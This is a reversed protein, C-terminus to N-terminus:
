ANNNVPTHSDYKNKFNTQDQQQAAKLKDPNFIESKKYTIEHTHDDQLWKQARADFFKIPENDFTIAQAAIIKVDVKVPPGCKAKMNGEADVYTEVEHYHGMTMECRTHPEGEMSHSHFFHVHEMQYIDPQGETYSKNKLCKSVELKYKDHRFTKSGAWIIKPEVQPPQILTESKIEEVPSQGDKKQIAM